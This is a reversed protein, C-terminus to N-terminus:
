QLHGREIEKKKWTKRNSWQWYLVSFLWSYEVVVCTCVVLRRETCMTLKSLNRDPKINFPTKM